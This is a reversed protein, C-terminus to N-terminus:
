LDEATWRRARRKWYRRIKKKKKSRSYPHYDGSKGAFRGTSSKAGMEQIDAVDPFEIVRVGYPKM